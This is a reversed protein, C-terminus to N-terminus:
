TATGDFRAALYADADPRTGMMFTRWAEQEAAVIGLEWVCGIVPREDMPADAGYVQRHFHQCLVCGQVWWHASISLGLEGPHITVFGLENSDGMANARAVVQTSAFTQATAIMSESVLHGKAM